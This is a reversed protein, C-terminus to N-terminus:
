DAIKTGLQRKAETRIAEADYLSVRYIYTDGDLYICNRDGDVALFGNIKATIESTDGIIYANNRGALLSYDAGDPQIFRMMTYDLDQYRCTQMEDFGEGSTAIPYATIDGNKYVVYLTSASNSDSDENDGAAEGSGFFLNEIYTANIDELEDLHGEQGSQLAELSYLRLSNEEKSVIAAYKIFSDVAVAGGDAFAEEREIEYALSGDAVDVGYLKKRSKFFVYRGTDDISMFDGSIDPTDYFAKQEGTAKDLLYIGRNVVLTFAEKEPYFGMGKCYSDDEHSWVVKGDDTQIIEVYTTYGDVYESVALYAGDKSLIADAYRNDGEYLTELNSDIAMRYLTIRKDLYPLTAYYDNGAKFDKVNTSTCNAFTTGVLDTMISLNVYHWTGDRTFVMFNDQGVYNGVEVVQSGFFYSDIYSGDRKDLIVASDYSFCLMYSSGEKSSISLDYMWDSESTYTWLFDNNLTLDCAYLTGSYRDTVLHVENLNFEDNDIVYLVNDAFKMFEVNSSAVSYRRYLEGTETEYVLVLNEEESSVPVAFLSGDKNLVASDKVEFAAKSELNDSWGGVATIEGSQGKVVIFGDNNVIVARDNEESYCIGYVSECSLKYAIADAQIDYCNIGTEAPYLFANENIFLVNEEEPYWIDDLMFSILREGDAADWVYLMGFDDVAIIRSREPSVKMFDITTDAELIRDPLIKTGNKYLNLSESLAYEVQATYPIDEDEEGPFALLATEIAGIRDGKELLVGSAQAQSICNSRMVQEYQKEIEASQASIQESQETIQINQKRIRLAMTTSILGFLLCVASGTLAATIIRRMEREKHRQRLDDYGCGFMPAALRLMETKIKKRVEAQSRGRVDAALPEVPLRKRLVTGQATVEEVEKYLLEEPFSTEPEGEILVLLVHERDHLSIFTEIEKKCWMSERLRPSCIVILFESQKLAETIPDALNSVLPLEDQDRFIRTIKSRTEEGNERLRNALNEPLKFNELQRHLNKAVFSDLETHRYSIFADYYWKKEM